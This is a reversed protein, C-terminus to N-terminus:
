CKTVGLYQRFSNYFYNTVHLLFHFHQSFINVSLEHALESSDRVPQSPVTTPTIVSFKGLCLLQSRYIPPLQYNGGVPFQLQHLLQSGPTFLTAGFHLCCNFGRFIFYNFNNTRCCYNQTKIDPLWIFIFLIDMVASAKHIERNM